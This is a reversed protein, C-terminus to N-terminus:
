FYINFFSAFSKKGLDITYLFFCPKPMGRPCHNFYSKYAYVFLIKDGYKAVVQKVIPQATRCAPCEFDSFEVITVKAERSGLVHSDKNVLDAESVEIPKSESSFLFLGAGVFFLTVICIGSSLWIFSFKNM